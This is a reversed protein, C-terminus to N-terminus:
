AKAEKDAPEQRVVQVFIDDLSPEVTEFRDVVVGPSNV